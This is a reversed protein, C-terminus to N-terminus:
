PGAGNLTLAGGTGSIPGSITLRSGAAPAAVVSGDLVVPASITQSGATVAINASATGNDLTM